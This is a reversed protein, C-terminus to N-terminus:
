DRHGIPRGIALEALTRVAPDPHTEAIEALEIQAERTETWRLAGVAAQAAQSDGHDVVDRLIPVVSPGLTALSRGAAARVGLEPDDLTALATDIARRGQLAVLREIAAARVRPAPDTRALRSLVREAKGPPAARAAAERVDADESEFLAQVREGPIQGDLQALATWVVAPASEAGARAQLPARVAEPRREGILDLVASRLAPTADPRVLALVLEAGAEPSLREGLNPFRALREVALAALQPEAGAALRALHEAGTPGERDPGLALYHTLEDLAGPSPTRLFADGREAVALTRLREQPDPLRQLWISQPPLPGLCVLVRDHPAFREPRSLSLEEWVVPIEAGRRFTGVLSREVHLRAARGHADLERPALVEGVVGVPGAELCEFLRM